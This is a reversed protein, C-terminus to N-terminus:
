QKRLTKQVSAGSIKSQPLLVGYLEGNEKAFFKHNPGAVDINFVQNETVTTLWKFLGHQQTGSTKRTYLGDTIIVLTSLKSRYWTKLQARQAATFGDEYAPVAIVKVRAANATALTDLSYLMSDAAANQTIPLTVVLIRKGQYASLAQNGGEIKPVSYSYITNVFFLAAILLGSAFIILQKM